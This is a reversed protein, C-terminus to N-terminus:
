DDLFATIDPSKEKKVYSTFFEQSLISGQNGNVSSLTQTMREVNKEKNSLYEQYDKELRDVAEGAFANKSKRMSDIKKQGSENVVPCDTEKWVRFGEFRIFTHKDFIQMFVENDEIVKIDTVENFLKSLFSESKVRKEDEKLNVPQKKMDVIKHLNTEQRVQGVENVYHNGEFIKLFREQYDNFSEEVTSKVIDLVKVWESKPVKYNINQRWTIYAITMLARGENNSLNYHEGSIKTFGKFKLIKGDEKIEVTFSPSLIEQVQKAVFFNKKLSGECEITIYGKEMLGNLNKIVKQKDRQKNTTNLGLYYIIMDVSTFSQNWQSSQRMFQIHAYLMFEESTLHYKSGWAFAVNPVVVFFKENIKM